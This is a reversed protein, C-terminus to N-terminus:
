NVIEKGSSPHLRPKRIGLQIGLISVAAPTVGPIRGAMALDKPRIRALKERIERSLGDIIAYDLDSPIQRASMRQLKEADHNQQRIYGEYRM